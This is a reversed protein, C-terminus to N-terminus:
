RTVIIKKGEMEFKVKSTEELIKLMTALTINRPITATFHDPISTRIEVAEIGAYWRKIEKMVDAFPASRFSFIGEKWAVADETNVTQINIQSPKGSQLAVTAQQGPSLVKKNNGDSIAVKGELLITRVQEQGDYANVDFHTGLVSVQVENIAVIFPQAPNKAVEFYAEGTISVKREAGTFATPYHISSEANLWVKTRDPLTLSYFGGTPTSVAHYVVPEAKSVDPKYILEDGQKDVITGGEETLKGDQHTDLNVIRGDSLTLTAKKSGPQIDEQPQKQEVVTVPPTVVKDPRALWWWGASIVLGAVVAAALWTWTKKKRMPVVLAQGLGNKAVFQRWAADDDIQDLQQLSEAVLQQNLCKDIFLQNTESARGWDDLERQEEVSITGDQAKLLLQVIKHYATDQM